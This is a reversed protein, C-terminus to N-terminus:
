ELEATGLDHGQANQFQPPQRRAGIQEARSSKVQGSQVSGSCGGSTPSSTWPRERRQSTSFTVGESIGRAEGTTVKAQASSSAWPCARRTKQVVLDIPPEKLLLPPRVEGLPAEVIRAPERVGIQELRREAAPM